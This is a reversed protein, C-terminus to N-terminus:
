GGESWEGAALLKHDTVEVSETAMTEEEAPTPRVRDPPWRAAIISLLRTFDLVAAQSEGFGRHEVLYVM